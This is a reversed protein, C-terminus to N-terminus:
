GIFPIRRLVFRVAYASTIITIGYTLELATAYYAISAPLTYSPM